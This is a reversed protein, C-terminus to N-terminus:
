EKGSYQLWSNHELVSYRVEASLSTASLMCHEIVAQTSYSQATNQSQTSYSLASRQTSYSLVSRQPTCCAICCRRSTNVHALPNVQVYKKGFM